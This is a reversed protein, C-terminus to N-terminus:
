RLGFLGFKVYVDFPGAPVHRPLEKAQHQLTLQGEWTLDTTDELLSAVEFPQQLKPPAPLAHACGPILLELDVVADQFEELLINFGQHWRTFFSPRQNLVQRLSYDDLGSIEAIREVPIESHHAMFEAMRQASPDIAQTRADYTNQAVEEYTSPKTEFVQPAAKALKDAGKGHQDKSRVSVRMVAGTSTEKPLGRLFWIQASLFARATAAGGRVAPPKQLCSRSAELDLVVAELRVEGAKRRKGEEEARAYITHWRNKEVLEGIKVELTGISDDCHPMLDEDFVELKVLQRPNFIFFDAWGSDGWVPTLTAKRTLTRFCRAGVNVIAYPDSSAKSFLHWDKADLGRAECVCLRLIAEPRPFQFSTLDIEAERGQLWHIFLRNPLVLQESILQMVVQRVAGQIVPLDVVNAVGVFDWQISPPSIMSIQMGGVIPLTDMLPRLILSVEGALTLSKIGLQMGAVLYLEIDADCSWNFGVDLQIGCHKQKTKDYVYVPGLTPLNKGLDCKVFHAGKLPAPLAEKLAPEVQDKIVSHLTKDVYPWLRSVAFNLWDLSSLDAKVASDPGGGYWAELDEISKRKGLQPRPEELGTSFNQPRSQTQTDTSLGTLPEQGELKQVDKNCCGGM